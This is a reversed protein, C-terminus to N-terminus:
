RVQIKQWDYGIASDNHAIRIEDTPDYVGSTVYIVLMPGNICKYGHVVGPPFKYVLPPYGDGALLEMTKGFTKSDSRTDHLAIKASGNVVCTWQDQFKHAHWAKIVGHHVFSYSMQGFGEQFFDDTARIIEQFYGREDADRVLDKIVVGEIM